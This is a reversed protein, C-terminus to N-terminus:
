RLLLVVAGIATMGLVLQRFLKDSTRKILKIGIAFGILIVPVIKADLL